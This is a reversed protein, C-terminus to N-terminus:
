GRVVRGGELRVVADAAALVREDHTAVLVCAGAAAAARLAALVRDVNADDQHGTPEDLM